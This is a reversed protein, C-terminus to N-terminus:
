WLRSYSSPAYRVPLHWSSLPCVDKGASNFHPAIVAGLTDSKSCNEVSITGFHCVQHQHLVVTNYLILM